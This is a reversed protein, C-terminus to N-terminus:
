EIELEQKLEFIKDILFDRTLPKEKSEKLALYVCYQTILNDCNEYLLVKKVTQESIQCANAIELYNSM